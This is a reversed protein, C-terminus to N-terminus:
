KKIEEKVLSLASLVTEDMDAYRYKGLRGGFRVHPVERALQLYKRYLGDNKEDNVPYYPEKGVAWALPYERSIVTFPSSAGTFHKHEIIRTYPVESATYNVVANGQFNETELREHEFRLSRYELAGLRYGFFGDITGTYIVRDALLDFAPKGSVYDVGTIVEIGRLLNEFLPTYGKAPVGQYADNFYNNNFTFRLPLRRIVFAPLQNCPKGWQKETYGQILKEYIDRGVLRLAQEELNRAEGVGHESQEAIKRKAEQPSKVGWLRYFTNMNFPLNYLEGRYNAMPSNIFPLFRAYRNVYNWVSRNSTHFVHAGYRHVAIGEEEDTYCNGGVHGRKELVLVRKGRDTLERACVSGFLGAGVILYDYRRM